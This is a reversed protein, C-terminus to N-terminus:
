CPVMCRVRERHATAHGRWAGLDIYPQFIHTGDVLFTGDPIEALLVGDTPDGDVTAPLEVLSRDPRQIKIVASKLATLNQPRTGQRIEATITTGVDGAHNGRPFFSITSHM